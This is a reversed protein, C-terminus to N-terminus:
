AADIFSMARVAKPSANPNMTGQKLFTKKRSPSDMNTATMTTTPSEIGFVSPLQNQYYEDEKGVMRNTVVQILADMTPKKKEDFKADLPVTSHGTQIEVGFADPIM